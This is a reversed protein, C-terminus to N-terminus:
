AREFHARIAVSNKLGAGMKAEGPWRVGWLGRDIEVKTSVKAANDLENVEALVTLLKSEEHLTLM